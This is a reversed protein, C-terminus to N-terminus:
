DALRKSMEAQRKTLNKTKNFVPNKNEMPAAFTYRRKGFRNLRVM